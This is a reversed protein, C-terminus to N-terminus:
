IHAQSGVVYAAEEKDIRKCSPYNFDYEMYNYASLDYVSAEQVAGYPNPM